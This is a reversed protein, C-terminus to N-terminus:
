QAAAERVPPPAPPAIVEPLPRLPLVQPASWTSLQEPMPPVWPLAEKKAACSTLLLLVGLWYRM